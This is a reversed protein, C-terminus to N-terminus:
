FFCTSFDVVCVLYWLSTIIGKQEARAPSCWSYQMWICGFHQFVPSLTWPLVILLTLFSFCMVYLFLSLSKYVHLDLLLFSLPDLQQWWSFYSTIIFDSKELLDGASPCFAITVVQLLLFELWVYLFSRSFSPPLVSPFAALLVQSIETKM